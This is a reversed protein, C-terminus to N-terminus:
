KIKSLQLEFDRIKSSLRNVDISYQNSSIESKLREIKSHNTSSETKLKQLQNMLTIDVQNESIPVKSDIKESNQLNEKKENKYKNDINQQNLNSLNNTESIKINM